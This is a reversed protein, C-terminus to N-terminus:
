RDSGPPLTFLSVVVRWDEIGAKILVPRDTNNEFRLDKYPHIAVAADCGPLVYPVRGSHPHREVVRLGAALVANYLTSSVQCVGGGIGPLLIGEDMIQAEKWGTELTYEPMHSNFSFEEGPLVLLNNIHGLAKRINHQRGASGYLTTSYRGAVHRLGTLDDATWRHPVPVLTPYVRQFIGARMIEALTTEVDLKVGDHGPIVAGTAQDIGADVPPREVRGAWGELLARVEHAYMGGVPHDDLRVGPRVGHVLRELRDSDVGAAAVTVVVLLLLGGAALGRPFRLGM